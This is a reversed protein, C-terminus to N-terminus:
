DVNAPLLKMLEQKEKCKPMEYFIHMLYSYQEIGNAKATEILSYFCASAEAEEPTDYFLWNKRDVVFPRIPRSEDDKV